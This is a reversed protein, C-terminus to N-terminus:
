LLKLANTQSANAQALVSTGAQSLIGQKTLESTEVAMDADRIRSNASSYSERTISLNSITSTLRNQLAGLVARNGSVSNIAKDITELNQQASEKTTVNTESLGLTETRVDTNQPSYSIRDNNPNNNLGVQFELTQQDDGGGNLLSHGNFETVDSIRDVESKLAQFELDILNREDQGVTDSAAQVSLERLRTLINSVENMGGEATQILSIGDNANRSAQALGRIGAKLKESIALGAADDASQTIRSGSALKNLTKAQKQTTNSLNRQATLSTVNTNVRLGM